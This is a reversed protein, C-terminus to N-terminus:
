IKKPLGAAYQKLNAAAGIAGEKHFAEALMNVKDPDKLKLANRFVKRREDKVEKPLARLNARKVLNEGQETLGEKKFGDALRKLQAPELKSSMAKDYVLQRGSTMKAKKSRKHVAYGSVLTAIGVAIPLLM